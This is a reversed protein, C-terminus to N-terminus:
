QLDPWLLVITNTAPRTVVEHQAVVQSTSVSTATVTSTSGPINLAAGMGTTSTQTAETNLAWTEDFYGLLPRWLIPREM